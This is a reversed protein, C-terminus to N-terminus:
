EIAHHGLPYQAFRCKLGRPNAGSESTISGAPTATLHRMLSARLAAKMRPCPRPKERSIGANARRFGALAPLSHRERWCASGSGASHAVRM